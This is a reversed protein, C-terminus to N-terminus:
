GNTEGKVRMDIGYPIVMKTYGHKKFVRLVDSLLRVEDDSLPKEGFNVKLELTM